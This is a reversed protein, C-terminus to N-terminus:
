KFFYFLKEFFGSKKSKKPIFEVEEFNQLNSYKLASSCIQESSEEFFNM